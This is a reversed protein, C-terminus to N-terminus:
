PRASRGPRQAEPLRCAPTGGPLRYRNAAVGRYALEALARVVPASLVLGAVPWPLRCSKLLEAVAAAGGFVRGSPAVWLVEHRARDPTTRYAALDAEQWALVRMRVPLREAWRASRTCFGCDGDYILVPLEAM